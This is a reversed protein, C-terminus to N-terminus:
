RSTVFKDSKITYEANGAVEQQWATYDNSLMTNKVMYNQYTEGYGSFYMIHYGYTTEVIGTDGVQRGDEFCWADFADVMSGPTINEYLGGEEASGTDESNTVALEAFAEETADGALFEDLIMEAEAKAAEMAETDTTDSVSILIHRVNPLQYSHDEQRVFYVVYYGDDSGNDVYTTDGEVRAADTVWERIAEPISAATYDERLTYAEDEFSEKSAEPANELALDIFAQEDGKAAEAMEGAIKECAALAEPDVTEEESVEEAEETEEEVVQVNFLRYTYGDFDAANEAYYADIDAQEYSFNNYIYNAYEQALSNVTLYEEYSEKDCGRGYQAVLLADGSSYGYISAMMDLSALESDITLQTDESLTYGNAVAEDYIAYTSAANSMAYEMLYDHWTGEEILPCEQEDLALSTDSFYSLMQQTSDSAYASYYYYNVMAPTLKHGNAVAATSHTEFFGAGVMGFFVVAAVLVLAIVVGLVTKLGKSMGKKKNEAVSAEPAATQEQRKKKERSASMNHNMGRMCTNEGFRYKSM